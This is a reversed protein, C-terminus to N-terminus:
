CHRGWLVLVICTSNRRGRSQHRSEQTCLRGAQCRSPAVNSWTPIRPVSPACTSIYTSTIFHTFMWLSKNKDWSWGEYSPGPRWWLGSDSGAYYIVSNGASCLLTSVHISLLIQTIMNGLCFFNGHTSVRFASEGSVILNGM